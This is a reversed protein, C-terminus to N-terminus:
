NVRLYFHIENNNSASGLENMEHSSSNSRTSTELETFGFKNLVRQSGLNTSRVSAHIGHAKLDEFAIRFIRQLAETAYGRGWESPLFQYSVSLWKENAKRVELVADNTENTIGLQSIGILKHGKYIGFNILPQDSNKEEELSIGGLGLIMVADIRRVRVGSMKVVEPNALIDMAEAISVPALPRLELRNTKFFLHEPDEAVTIAKTANLDPAVFVSSCRLSSPETVSSMASPSNFTITLWAFSCMILSTMISFIHQKSSM